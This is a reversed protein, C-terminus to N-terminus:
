NMKFYKDSVNHMPIYAYLRANITGTQEGVIHLPVDVSLVHNYGKKKNVMFVTGQLSDNDKSKIGFYATCGDSLCYELWQKLKIKAGEEEYRYKDLIINIDYDGVTCPSMMINAISQNIKKKDNVLEYKRGKKIYFLDNRILDILYVNGRDIYLDTSAEFDNEVSPEQVCFQGNSVYRQMYRLLNDELELANCGVLLQYDMDFEVSLLEKEDRSWSIIYRKSEMYSERFTETGDFSFVVDINGYIHVKDIFLRVATNIDAPLKLELFYRELFDYVPSPNFSRISDNSFIQVGIHEVERWENVRVTLPYNGYSYSNYTGPSLSDVGQLNIQGAMRELRKSAFAVGSEQACLNTLLSTLCLILLSYRRYGKM